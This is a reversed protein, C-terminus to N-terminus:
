ASRPRGCNFWRARVSMARCSGTKGTSGCLACRRRELRAAACVTFPFGDQLTVIGGIEWGGAIWNEVTTNRGIAASSPRWGRVGARSSGREVRRPRRRRGGCAVAIAECRQVDRSTTARASPWRAAAFSGCRGGAISRRDRGAPRARGYTATARHGGVRPSETEGSLSRRRGPRRGPVRFPSAVHARLFWSVCRQGKEVATRQIRRRRAPSVARTPTVPWPRPRTGRPAM